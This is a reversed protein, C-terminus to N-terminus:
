RFFEWHCLCGLDGGVSGLDVGRHASHPLSPLFLYGFIQSGKRPCIATWPTGMRTSPSCHFVRGSGARLLTMRRAAAQNGDPQGALGRCAGRRSCDPVWGGGFCIGIACVVLLGVLLHSFYPPFTLAILPGVIVVAALCLAVLLGTISVAIRLSRGFGWNIRVLLLLALYMTLGVAVPLPMEVWEVAGLYVSWVATWLMTKRLSFQFPRRKPKLEGM